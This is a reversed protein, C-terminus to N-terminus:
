PVIVKLSAPSISIRAGDPFIVPEGDIQMKINKDTIIVEKAKFDRVYPSQNLSGHFLKYAMNSAEYFPFPRMIVVNFYGDSMDAHPAIMAGNGFEPSNAFSILFAKQKCKIGDIILEYTAPRYEPFTKMTVLIYSAFGRHGFQSFRWGIEADFGIGAVGIYSRDNIRVTDLAVQHGKQIIDIAQHTDSPIHLSRALGNGSGTPIIALATDSGILAQGVENMTGDGGVAIVLDAHEAVAQKALTTGDGIGKTYFIHASFSDKLEQVIADKNIGGSIPNVIVYVGQAQLHSSMLIIFLLIGTKM